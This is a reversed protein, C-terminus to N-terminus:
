KNKCRKVMHTPSFGRVILLVESINPCFVISRLSVPLPPPIKVTFCVTVTSCHIYDPDFCAIHSTYGHVVDNFLKTSTQM